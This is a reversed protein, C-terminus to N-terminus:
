GCSIAQYPATLSGAVGAGKGTITATGATVSASRTTFLQYAAKTPAVGSVVKEGFPSSLTVDLAVGGRNYAYVAVMAQGNVCQSRANVALDPAAAPTVTADVVQWRQGPKADHMQLVLLKSSEAADARHVPISTDDAGVYLLQDGGGFWYSPAYPDGTFPQSADVVSDDSTAYYSFTVVQFTPVTGEAIGLDALSVPVVLVNNDFVSTDVDPWVSNVPELLVNEGAEYATGDPGTWDKLTYTAALTLDTDPYKTVEVQFEPDADGDLDIVVAPIPDFGLAAWPGDMAVGIGVHGTAPDEGAAALQPATSAFGVARIDGAAISSASTGESAEAPLRPSRDKLEFPAVLSTWGGADVGRGDIELSAQTEGAGFTVPNATLDSVLKPAAQVPVRLEDGGATPTLVLRGSVMAVYDRPLGPLSEASSTPDLEKALTAPDATLTLTVTKTQGKPVSVQKPTVDITAGGASSSTTFATSYKVNKSGTNVVNVTKRIKVTKEGVPVVGFSVSVLDPNESAYALTTNGVADLADVRGSGVREPGYATGTRNEGTWVDHTATNMVSAKVQQPTWGPHAQKVLAAIGAVHPTAMSTGSKISPETLHGSAASAIGTGPAAVDPKVIGLSGHVGRSSGANLTDGIEPVSVFSSNALSPGITLVLTGAEIAPRLADHSPGTLQAGPIGANGAIGAAFSSLESSLLVGVAGAAQANNFRAGSGCPRTTDNDDWYLFAIKGATAAAQAPTLPQCGTVDAGLFAVPATVDATGTYNVSSQAPYTGALDAPEEVRVADFTQTDGVSNAVTLSTASNGPSGGVDTVDGANGSAVVSLTGIRSLYDMFLNEPDDAPSGDSGLSLNVVDLRDRLDGDGDPDAAWDLANVVVSTSGGLDGFVKLAYIGAEPASGPGVRWDSIDTLTSYDGRFTSGDALVGYGATTGAVHTGHGSGIADYSDIPNPDPSPVVTTGPTDGSADYDYGAFDYGGLFKADDFTGDPVPDQGKEGYATDFAEQTGPGGFDAHTYDLGTDIIGVRVGEGTRGTAQWAALTQTLVDTGKNSPTKPTIRYVKVVEDKDALARVQASDGVVVVGAVVNSTVSLQRPASTAARRQAAGGQAPVVEDALAQVKEEAARVQAPSAGEAARDAGSPADLQVFATVEGQALALSPAVKDTTTGSLPGAVSVGPSGTDDPPPAALAPVAAATVMSLAAVTATSLLTRRRM